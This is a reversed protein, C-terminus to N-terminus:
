GLAAALQLRRAGEEPEQPGTEHGREDDRRHLAELVSTAHASDSLSLGTHLLSLVLILILVHPLLLSLLVHRLNLSLRPLCVWRHTQAGHKPGTTKGLRENGLYLVPPDSKSFLLLQSRIAFGLPNYANQRRCPSTRSSCACVRCSVCSLNIIRYSTIIIILHHTRAALRAQFLAHCPHKPPYVHNAVPRREAKGATRATTTTSCVRIM